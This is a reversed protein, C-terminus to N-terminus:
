EDKITKLGCSQDFLGAENRSRSKAHRHKNVYKFTTIRRGDVPKGAQMRAFEITHRVSRRLQIIDFQRTNVAFCVHDFNHPYSLQTLDIEKLQPLRRGRFIDILSVNGTDPVIPRFLTTRFRAEQLERAVGDQPFIICDDKAMDKICPPDPEFDPDQGHM